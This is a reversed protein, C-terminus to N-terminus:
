TKNAEVNNLRIENYKMKKFQEGGSVVYSNGTELQSINTVRTGNLPTYINRVAGFGPELAETAYEYLNEFNRIHKPNLIFKRGVYHQDGNKYLKISKAPAPMKNILGGEMKATTEKM